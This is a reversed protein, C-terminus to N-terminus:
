PRVHLRNLVRMLMGRLSRRSILRVTSPTDSLTSTGYRRNKEPLFVDARKCLETMLDRTFDTVPYNAIFDQAGKTFLHAHELLLMQWNVNASGSAYERLYYSDHFDVRHLYTTDPCVYASLGAALFRWAFSQTDFGHHTPYGGCAAFAERTYMFVSYLACLKGDKQLLNELPIREGAYSFTDSYAINNLDTGRFKTSHQVGVGDAGRERLFAYMRDLTHPPLLDDSDLCFIVPAMSHEFATNRAAGGGRNKEHSVVRINTHREALEEMVRLTGDTSCDDVMVIEFETDQFGQRYCSAVAEELTDKCNYCPIIVSLVPKM